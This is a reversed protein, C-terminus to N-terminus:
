TGPRYAAREKGNAKRASIIRIADGRITWVLAVIEGDLTGIGLVRVEGYDTRDDLTVLMASDFARACDRFDIGHRELNARRKREDWEFRM